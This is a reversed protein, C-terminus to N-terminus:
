FNKNKGQLLPTLFAKEVTWGKNLRQLICGYSATNKGEIKLIEVWEALSKIKNRFNIRKSNTRNLCQRDMKIYCCNSKEYNGNVDIREISYGEPREGMDALFNEFSNLWRDCVIIGRGGYDPYDLSNPNLCRNKMASWTRYTLSPKNGCYHGHTTQAEKINIFKTCGCNTSTGRRLNNGFVQKETKNDCNCQCWWLHMKNKDVHSYRLVKWSGFTMGTLDILKASM